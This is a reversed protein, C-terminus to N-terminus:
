QIDPRRSRNTQDSEAAGPTSSSALETSDNNGPTGAERGSRIRYQIIRWMTLCGVAALVVGAIHGLAVLAAGGATMVACILIRQWPKAYVMALRVAPGSGYPM